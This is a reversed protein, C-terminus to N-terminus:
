FHMMKGLCARSLCILFEFVFCANRTSWKVTRQDPVIVKGSATTVNEADLSSPERRQTSPASTISWAVSQQAV